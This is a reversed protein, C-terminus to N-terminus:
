SLTGSSKQPPTDPVEGSLQHELWKRAFSWRRDVTRTTCNLHSAIEQISCGEFVRMEVITRLQPDIAGLRDLLNEVEALDAAGTSELKLQESLGAAEARRYLPRAHHVLMRKMMRAALGFFAERHSVREDFTDLAKIKLLELYLENVLVTPQWTHPARESRMRLRALRRLEPYFMAVLQGAAEKSGRRLSEFLEAIVAPDTQNPQGGPGKQM